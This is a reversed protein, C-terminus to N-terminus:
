FLIWAVSWHGCGIGHCGELRVGFPGFVSEGCLGWGAIGLRELVEVGADARVGVEAEDGQVAVIGQAAGLPAVVGGKAGAEVTRRKPANNEMELHIPLPSRAQFCSLGVSVRSHFHQYRISWCDVDLSIRGQVGGIVTGERGADRIVFAGEPSRSDFSRCRGIETIVSALELDDNRTGIAILFGIGGNRGGRGSAALRRFTGAASDVVWARADTGLEERPGKVHLGIGGWGM